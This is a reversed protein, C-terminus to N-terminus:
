TAGYTGWSLRKRGSGSGREGTATQPREVDRSKKPENTTAYYRPTSPSRRRSNLTANRPVPSTTPTLPNLALPNANLSPATPPRLSSTGLTRRISGHGKLPKGKEKEEERRGREKGDESADVDKRVIKKVMDRGRVGWSRRKQKKSTERLADPPVDANMLSWRNSHTNVKESKSRLHRKPTPQISSMSGSREELVPLATVEPEPSSTPLPLLLPPSIEAPQILTAGSSRASTPIVRQRTRSLSFREHDMMLQQKTAKLEEVVGKLREIEDQDETHFKVAADVEDKLDRVYHDKEAITNRLLDMEEEKDVLADRVEALQGEMRQFHVRHVVSPRATEMDETVAKESRLQERLAEADQVAIFLKKNADQLRKELAAVEAYLRLNDQQATDFMNELENKDNEDEDITPLRGPMSNARNRTPEVESLKVATEELQEKTQTHKEREEKLAKQIKKAIDWARQLEAQQNVVEENTTKMASLQEQLRAITVDKDEEDLSTRGKRVRLIRVELAHDGEDAEQDYKPNSQSEMSILREKLVKLQADKLETAAKHQRAMEELQLEREELYREKQENAKRLAFLEIDKRYVIAQHDRGLNQKITKFEERLSTYEAFNENLANRANHLEKKTNRLQVEKAKNSTTSETLTCQLRVIERDKSDSDSSGSVGSDVIATQAYIPTALVSQSATEPSPRQAPGQPAAGTMADARMRGLTRQFVDFAVIVFLVVLLDNAELKRNACTVLAIFHLVNVILTQHRRAWAVPLHQITLHGVGPLATVVIVSLIRSSPSHHTECSLSAIKTFASNIIRNIDHASPTDGTEFDASYLRASGLFAHCALLATPYASKSPGSTAFALELPSQVPCIQPTTRSSSISSATASTIALQSSPLFSESTVFFFNGPVAIIIGATIPLPNQAFDRSVTTM